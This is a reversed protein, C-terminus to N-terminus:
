SRHVFTNGATVKEPSELRMVKEESCREPKRKLNVLFFNYKRTICTKVGAELVKKM